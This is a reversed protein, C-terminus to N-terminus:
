QAFLSPIKLTSLYTNTDKMLSRYYASINNVMEIQVPGLQSLSRAYEYQPNISLALDIKNSLLGANDVDISTDVIALYYPREIDHIPRLICRGVLSEDVALLANKVFDESLKEGCIDSTLDGKGQFSLLPTNNYYEVVTVMDGTDYRYLGSQTTVIVRYSEGVTLQHLLFVKNNNKFEYFHSDVALIPAILNKYPLTIIAETSLLGKGQIYVDPFYKQLEQAYVKSTHSDWCSITDLKNWILNTSIKTPTIANELLIARDSCDIKKVLHDKNKIIYNLIEILLTPSWLSIFTLNNENLLLISVKEMWEDVDQCDLLESSYLTVEKLHEYLEPGFYLLDDGVSIPIDSDKKNKQSCAPSIIFFISGKAINSRQQLLDGLWPLVGNQFARMTDQTYPILKQGSSSGGTLEFQIVPSVTLVKSSGARISEIPSSFAEYTQISVNQVYDEYNNISSFNHQEGFNSTQNLQVIDQLIKKQSEQSNSLSGEFQGLRERTIKLISDWHDV